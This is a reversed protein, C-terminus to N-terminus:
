QEANIRQHETWMWVDLPDADSVDEENFLRTRLDLMEAAARKGAEVGPQDYANLNLREAYFGVTREFLAVLAGLTSENLHEVVLTSVTRGADQLAHRTGMLFGLLYEGAGVNEEVFVKPVAM